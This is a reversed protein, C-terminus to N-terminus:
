LFFVYRSLFGAFDNNERFFNNQTCNELVPTTRVPNEKCSSPIFRFYKSAERISITRTLVNPILEGVGENNLNVRTLFNRM